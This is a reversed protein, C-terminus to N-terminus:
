PLDKPYQAGDAIALYQNAKAEIRAIAQETAEEIRGIPCDEWADHVGISGDPTWDHTACRAHPQATVFGPALRMTHEWVCKSM